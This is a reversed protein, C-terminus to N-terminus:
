VCIVNVCDVPGTKCFAVARTSSWGIAASRRLVVYYLSYVVSNRMYALMGLAVLASHCTNHTRYDFTCHNFCLGLVPLWQAAPVQGGAKAGHGLSSHRAMRPLITGIRSYWRCLMVFVFDHSLHRTYTYLPVVCM